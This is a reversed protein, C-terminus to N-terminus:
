LSHITFSFYYFIILIKIIEMRKCYCITFFFFFVNETSNIAAKAIQM